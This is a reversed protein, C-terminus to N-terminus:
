MGYPQEGTEIRFGANYIYTYPTFYVYTATGGQTASGHHIGCFDTGCRYPGGSDGPGTTGTIIEAKTMNHIRMSGNDPTLTIGTATVKCYAQGSVAGYKYLYTGVAPNLMYGHYNTAAGGTTLVSSAATYGDVATSISFDGNGSSSYQVLSTTGIATGGSFLDTGARMAHGCTLFAVSGNYTGSGGLTLGDGSSNKIPTGGILSVEESIYNNLQEIYVMDNTNYSRLFKNYSSKLVSIFGKNELVDVGYGIVGTESLEEEAARQVESFLENYSYEASQYKVCDFDSLVSNYRDIDGGETVLVCLTDYDIYTGAFDEPYIYTGNQEFSAYLTENALCADRQIEFMIEPSINDASVAFASVNRHSGTVICLTLVIALIFKIKKM